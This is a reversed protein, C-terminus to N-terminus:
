VRQLILSTGDLYQTAGLKPKGLSFIPLPVLDSIERRYYTLEITGSIPFGVLAEVVSAPLSVSTVTTRLSGLLDQFSTRYLISDLTRVADGFQTFWDVVFSYPIMDWVNEFSLLGWDCLGRIYDAERLDKMNYFVSLFYDTEIDLDKLLGLGRDPIRISARARDVAPAKAEKLLENELVDLCERTDKVTLPTGWKLSLRLNTVATILNKFSQVTDPLQDNSDAINRLLKVFDAGQQALDTLDARMTFLEIITSLMNSTVKKCQLCANEALDGWTQLPAQTPEIREMVSRGLKVLVLEFQAASLPVHPAVRHTQLYVPTVYHGGPELYALGEQFKQLAETTVVARNDFPWNNANIDGCFWYQNNAGVLFLSVWITGWGMDRRNWVAYGVYDNRGLDVTTWGALLPNTGIRGDFDGDVLWGMRKGNEVYFRLNAKWGWYLWEIEITQSEVAFPDLSIAGKFNYHEVPKNGWRDHSRMADIDNVPKLGVHWMKHVGAPKALYLLRQSWRSDNGLRDFTIAIYPRESGYTSVEVDLM